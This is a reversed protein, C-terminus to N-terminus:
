DPSLRHCCRVSFSKVRGAGMAQLAEVPCKRSVSPLLVPRFICIGIIGAHASGLASLVLLVWIISPICSHKEHAASLLHPFGGSPRRNKALFLWCWEEWCATCRPSFLWPWQNWCLLSPSTWRASIWNRWNASPGIFLSSWDLKMGVLALVSGPIYCRPRSCNDISNMLGTGKKESFQSCIWWFHCIVAILLISPPIIGFSIYGMMM